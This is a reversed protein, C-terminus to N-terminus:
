RYQKYVVACARKESKVHKDLFIYVEKKGAYVRIRQCLIYKMNIQNYVGFPLQFEFTVTPKCSLLEIHM